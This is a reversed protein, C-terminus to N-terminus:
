VPKTQVNELSAVNTTTLSYFINEILYAGVQTTM